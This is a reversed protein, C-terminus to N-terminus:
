MRSMVAIGLSTWGVVFVRLAYRMCANIASASLTGLSLPTTRKAATSSSFNAVLPVVIAPSMALASLSASADAFPLSSFFPRTRVSVLLDERSLRSGSFRLLMPGVTLRPAGSSLRLLMTFDEFPSLFLM